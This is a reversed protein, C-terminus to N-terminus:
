KRTIDRIQSAFVAEHIEIHVEKRIRHLFHLCLVRYSSCTIEEEYVPLAEQYISIFM